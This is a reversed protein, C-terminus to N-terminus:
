IEFRGVLGRLHEAAGVLESASGSIQEFASSLREITRTVGEATAGTEESVTSIREVSRVVDDSGAAMEEVSASTEETISAVDFMAEGVSRSQEDLKTALQLLDSVQEGAATAGARIEALSASAQDARETGDVVYQDSLRVAEITSDVTDILRRVIGAIEKSSQSSKEALRRVEDAVVAFGKGQEGARAAEIAANLALLDTQEAIESIVEVIQGIQRSGVNLESASSLVGSVANRIDQMGATVGEVAEYGKAASDANTSVVEGLGSIASVARSIDEIMSSALRDTRDVSEAQQQAGTAIQNIAQALQELGSRSDLVGTVQLRVGAAVEEMKQSIWGAQDSQEKVLAALEVAEGEVERASIRVESVMDALRTLFKNFHKALDSVEDSGSEDLRRTLDGEGESLDKVMDIAHRLSRSISGSVTWAIGIGLVVALASVVAIVTSSRRASDRAYGMATNVQTELHGNFRSLLEGIAGIHAITTGTYLATAENHWSSHVLERTESTPDLSSALALGVIDHASGHLSRHQEELEVFIARLDNDLSRYEASDMYEYLWRGFSCQTPDLEGAFPREELISTSLDAVWRLHDQEKQLLFHMTDQVAVATETDALVRNVIHTTSAGLAILFGVLALCLLVLKGRITLAM